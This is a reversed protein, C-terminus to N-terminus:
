RVEIEGPEPVADDGRQCGHVLRAAWEVWETANKWVGARVRDDSGALARATDDSFLVQRRPAGSRVLSTTEVKM